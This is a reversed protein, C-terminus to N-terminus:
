KRGHDLITVIFPFLEMHRRITGEEINFTTITSKHESLMMGTAKCFIQLIASINEAEQISGSCFLLIDDVFVLHTINLHTDIKIGEFQGRRKADLIARSLGEVVLLFLLPSLPFGKRLGRESLFFIHLQDM